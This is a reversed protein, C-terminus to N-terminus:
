ICIIGEDRFGIQLSSEKSFRWGSLWCMLADVQHWNTPLVDLTIDFQKLLENVFVSNDKSKKNYSDKLGLVNKALYAPYTEYFAVQSLDSKLRMARATLGGLFMPSMARTEKDCERYFYNNGKGFYAAPLSLPADIFIKPPAEEQVFEIILTDADKKKESQLFHLKDKRQFCIVTTGALKSGYDIGVWSINQM